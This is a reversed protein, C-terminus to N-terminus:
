NRPPGDSPPDSSGQEGKLRALDAKAAELQNLVEQQEAKLRLIENQDTSQLIRWLMEKAQQDLSKVNSEAEAIQTAQADPAAQASEIRATENFPPPNEPAASEGGTATLDQVNSPKKRAAELDDNTFVRPKEKPKAGAAATPRPTPKPAPQADSSSAAVVLAASSLWVIASRSL